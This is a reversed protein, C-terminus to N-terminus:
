KSDEKNILKDEEESDVIDFKEITYWVGKKTDHNLSEVKAKSKKKDQYADLVLVFPEKKKKRKVVLYVRSM